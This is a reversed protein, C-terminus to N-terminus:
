RLEAAGPRSAVDELVEQGPAGHVDAKDWDRTMEHVQSLVGKRLDVVVRGGLHGHHGKRWARAM